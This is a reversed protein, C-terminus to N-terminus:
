VSRQLPPDHIKCSSSTCSITLNQCLLRSQALIVFSGDLSNLDSRAFSVCAFEDLLTYTFDFRGIMGTM